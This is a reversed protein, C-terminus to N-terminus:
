LFKLIGFVVSPVLILVGVVALRRESRSQAVMLRYVCYLCICSAAFCAFLEMSVDGHIM